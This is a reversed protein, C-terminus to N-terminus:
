DGQRDATRHRAARPRYLGQASAPGQADEQVPPRPCRARGARLAPPRPSQREPAPQYRGRPGARGAQATRRRLAPCRHPARHEKGDGHDRCCDEPSPADQGVGARQGARITGSLLWEVGEEGIRNRWRTMSSPDIPLRHRFVTEGCFHQWYPTGAWRVVVAEDSLRFAHRLYLLGAVLRTPTAPRGTQS